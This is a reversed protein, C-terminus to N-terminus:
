KLGISPAHAKLCKLPHLVEKYTEYAIGHLEACLIYAKQRSFQLLSSPYAPDSFRREGGGRGDNDERALEEGAGDFSLCLSIIRHSIM